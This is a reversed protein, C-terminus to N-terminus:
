YTCWTGNANKTHCSWFFGRRGDVGVMPVHHVQCHPAQETLPDAKLQEPEPAVAVTAMRAYTQKVWPIAQAAAEPDESRVSVQPKGDAGVGIIYTLNNM